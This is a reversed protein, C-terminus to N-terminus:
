DGSKRLLIAQEEVCSQRLFFQAFSNSCRRMVATCPTSLRWGEGFRKDWAYCTKNAKGFPYGIEEEARSRGRMRNRGTTAEPRASAGTRHARSSPLSASPKFSTYIHFWICVRLVARTKLFIVFHDAELRLNLAYLM